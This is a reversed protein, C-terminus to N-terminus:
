CLLMGFTTRMPMLHPTHDLGTSSRTKKSTPTFSDLDIVPEKGKSSSGKMASKKFSSM